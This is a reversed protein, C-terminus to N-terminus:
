LKVRAPNYFREVYVVDCGEKALLETIRRDVNSGFAVSHLRSHNRLYQYSSSMTQGTLLDIYQMAGTKTDYSDLVLAIFKSDKTRRRVMIHKFTM